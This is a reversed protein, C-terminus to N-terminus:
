SASAVPEPPEEANSVESAKSPPLCTWGHQVVPAVLTAYWLEAVNGAMGALQDFCYELLEDMTKLPLNEPDAKHLAQVQRRVPWLNKCLHEAQDVMRGISDRLDVSDYNAGSGFLTDAQNWSIVLDLGEAYLREFATHLPTGDEFDTSMHSLETLATAVSEHAERLRMEFHERFLSPSTVWRLADPVAVPPRNSNAAGTLTTEGNPNENSMPKENSM